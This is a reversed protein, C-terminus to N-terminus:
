LKNGIHERGGRDHDRERQRERSRKSSASSEMAALFAVVSSDASPSIKLDYNTSFVGHSDVRALIEGNPAQLTFDGDTWGTKGIVETDAANVVTFHSSSSNYDERILAIRGNCGEISTITVDGKESITVAKAIQTGNADNLSYYNDTKSVRGIEQGGKKVRFDSQFAGRSLTTENLALTTCVRKVSTAAPRAAVAPAAPVRTENFRSQLEGLSPLEPARDVSGAFVAIPSCMIILSLVKHSKM